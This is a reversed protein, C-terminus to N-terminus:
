LAPTEFFVEHLSLLEHLVRRLAVVYLLSCVLLYGYRLREMSGRYWSHNLREKAANIILLCALVVVRWRFLISWPFRRYHATRLCFGSAVMVVVFRIAGMSDLFCPSSLFLSM